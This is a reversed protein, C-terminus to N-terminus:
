LLVNGTSFFDMFSTNFPVRSFSYFIHSQVYNSAITYYLLLNLMKTRGLNETKSGDTEVPGGFHSFYM